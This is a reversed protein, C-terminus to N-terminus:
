VCRKEPCSFAAVPCHGTSADCSFGEPMQAVRDTHNMFVVTEPSVSEFLRGGRVTLETHGYEGADAHEVTGGLIYNILQMGYCIGLVPVGLSFLEKGLRPAGGEYVSNPGGTLIIGRLDDGAWTDMPTAYHMIECYVGAERVRRAILQNYQGGFDLIVIKELM